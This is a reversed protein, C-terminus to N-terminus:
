TSRIFRLPGKRIIEFKAFGFRAMNERLEAESYIRYFPYGKAKRYFFHLGNFFTPEKPHDDLLFARNRCLASLKELGEDTLYPLLGLGVIVDVDRFASPALDEVSCVQVSANVNSSASQGIRERAKAIATESIDIAMYRKITPSSKLAASAFDGTGCGLELVALPSWELLMALAMDQRRQLHKRFPQAVREILPLKKDHGYASASWAAINRDWFSRQDGSKM